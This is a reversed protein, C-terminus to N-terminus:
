LGLFSCTFFLYVSYTVSLLLSYPSTIFHPQVSVTSSVFVFSVVLTWRSQRIDSYVPRTIRFPEKSYCIFLSPLPSLKTQCLSPSFSLPFSLYCHFSFHDYMLQPPPAAYAAFLMSGNGGGNPAGPNHWM